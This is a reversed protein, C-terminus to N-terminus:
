RWVISGVGFIAMLCIAFSLLWSLIIAVKIRKKTVTVRYTLPIKTKLFCDVAIMIVAFLTALFVTLQFCDIVAWVCQTEKSASSQSFDRTPKIVDEPRHSDYGYTALMLLDSLCLSIDAIALSLILKFHNGSKEPLKYIIDSNCGNIIIIGILM